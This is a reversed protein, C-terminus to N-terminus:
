KPIQRFGTASVATVTYNLAIPLIPGGHNRLAQNEPTEPIQSQFVQSPTPADLQLAIAVFRQIVQETDECDLDRVPIAWFAPLLLASALLSKSFATKRNIVIAERLATDM